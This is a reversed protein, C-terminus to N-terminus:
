GLVRSRQGKETLRTQLVDPKFPLCRCSFVQRPSIEDLRSTSCVCSSRAHHGSRLLRESCRHCGIQATTLYCRLLLVPAASPMTQRLLVRYTSAGKRLSLPTRFETPISFLFFWGLQVLTEGGPAESPTLQLILRNQEWTLGLNSNPTMKVKKKRRSILKLVNPYPFFGSTLWGGM